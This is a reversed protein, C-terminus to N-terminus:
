KEQAYPIYVSLRLNSFEAQLQWDFYEFLLQEARSATESADPLAFILRDSKGV